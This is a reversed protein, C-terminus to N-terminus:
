FMDGFSIVHCILFFIDRIDCHKHDCSKDSTSMVCSAGVWLNSHGRSEFTVHYILYM